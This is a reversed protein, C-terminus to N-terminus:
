ESLKESFWQHYQQLLAMMMTAATSTLFKYQEETFLDNSEKLIQPATSTLDYRLKDFDFCKVFESFPPVNM